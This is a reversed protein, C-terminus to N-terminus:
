PPSAANRYGRDMLGPRRASQQPLGATPVQGAAGVAWVVGPVKSALQGQYM